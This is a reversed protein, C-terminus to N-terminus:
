KTIKEKVQDFNLELKVINYFPDYKTKISIIPDVLRCIKFCKMDPLKYDNLKINIDKILNYVIDSDKSLEIEQKCLLANSPFSDFFNKLNTLAMETLKRFFVSIYATASTNIKVKEDMSLDDYDNSNLDIQKGLMYTVYGFNAPTSRIDVLDNLTVNTWFDDLQDDYNMGYNIDKYEDEYEYSNPIYGNFTWRGGKPTRM